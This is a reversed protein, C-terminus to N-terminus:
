TTVPETGYATSGPRSSVSRQRPRDYSGGTGIEATLRYDGLITPNTMDALRVGVPTLATTLVRADLAARPIMGLRGFTEVYWGLPQTALYCTGFETV